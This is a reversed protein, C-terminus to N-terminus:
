RRLRDQNQMRASRDVEMMTQYFRLGPTCRRRPSGVEGRYFYADGADLLWGDPQQVAIGAHGSTHGPLPVLLIEPPLGALGRVAEFGMWREGNAPYRQWQVVEDWQQPRYRRTGIFGARRSAAVVEDDLVHVTAEPFDEVGGAHDFDLHTLVIHRVDEARFGLRKVAHLATYRPELQINNFLRFFLSLRDPRECDRLGIGTDVLVLGSETELLLCHCILRATLGRSVGDFLMGGLPCM